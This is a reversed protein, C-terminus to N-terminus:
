GKDDFCRAAELLRTAKSVISEPVYPMKRDQWMVVEEYSNSNTIANFPQALDVLTSMTQAFSDKPKVIPLDQPSWGVLMAQVVCKLEYEDIRQLGFLTYLFDLQNRVETTHEENQTEKQLFQVFEQSSMQVIPKTANM